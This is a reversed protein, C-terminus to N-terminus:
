RARPISSLPSRPARASRQLRRPSGPYRGPAPRQARQLALARGGPLDRLRARRRAGPLSLRVLQRVGRRAGLGPGAPPRRDPLPPRHRLRRHRCGHRVDVPSRRPHRRLPQHRPEPLLDLRVAQRQPRRTGGTSCCAVGRVPQAGAGTSDDRAAQQHAGAPRPHRRPGTSPKTEAVPPPVQETRPLPTSTQAPSCAAAIVICALLASFHLFRM